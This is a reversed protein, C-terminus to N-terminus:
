FAEFSGYLMTNIGLFKSSAHRTWKHNHRKRAITEVQSTDQRNEMYVRRRGGTEGEYYTDLVRMGRHMAVFLVLTAFNPQIQGNVLPNTSMPNTTNMTLLNM